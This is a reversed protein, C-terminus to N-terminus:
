RKGNLVESVRGPNVDFHAAIDSFDMEPNAAAYNRIAARLNATMYKSPMARRIPSKRVMMAIVSKIAVAAGAPTLAGSQLETAIEQLQARAAPVNSSM